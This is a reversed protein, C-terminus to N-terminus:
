SNAEFNICTTLCMSTEGSSLSNTVVTRDFLFCITVFAKNNLILTSIFSICCYYIVLIFYCTHEHWCIYKNKWPPPPPPNTCNISTDALVIGDSESDVTVKHLWPIQSNAIDWISWPIRSNWLNVTVYVGNYSRIKKNYTGKMYKNKLVSATITRYKSSLPWNVIVNMLYWCVRRGWTFLGCLAINM